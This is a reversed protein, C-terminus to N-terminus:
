NLLGLAYQIQLLAKQNKAQLEIRKVAASIYKMERSNVMFVSSEGISFLEREGELLDAYDQVTQTYLRVQDATTAWTNSAVGTKFRLDAQKNVQDLQTEKIKINALQLGGREKRLFLPMNFDLGWTYNNVTYNSLFQNGVPETIANYKLNLVPKLQEQKWRRDVELQDLKYQYWRLQPHVRILSDAQEFLGRVAQEEATEELVTPVSGPGLELPVFGDAWLYVNLQAAANAVELQAQQLYLLRNQVQISVELTDIPARDGLEVAQRVGVQRTQAITLAEQFVQLTYYSMAWDWYAKGSNYLLENLMLQQEVRTAQRYARARKLDARRQDMFLGQGLPLSVGAYLLGAAPNLNEPNLFVGEHNEYGAQVDLGFWTPIKLGGSFHGYYQSGKFYKQALQTNAKPDFGGRAKLLEADGRASALQAQIAIPHQRRVQEQFDAFSFLTVSDQQAWSVQALFILVIAISIKNM